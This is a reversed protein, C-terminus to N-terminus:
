DDLQELGVVIGRQCHVQFVGAPFSSPFYNFTRVQVGLHDDYTWVETPEGLVAIVDSEPRGLLHADDAIQQCRRNFARTYPGHEFADVVLYAPRVIALFFALVAIVIMLRRITWRPIRFLRRVMGPPLRFHPPALFVPESQDRPEIPM